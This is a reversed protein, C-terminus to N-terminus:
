QKIRPLGAKEPNQPLLRAHEWDHFENERRVIDRQCLGDLIVDEGPDGLQFVEIWPGDVRADCQLVIV